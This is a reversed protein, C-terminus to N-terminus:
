TINYGTIKEGVIGYLNEELLRIILNVGDNLILPSGGYPDGHTLHATSKNATEYVKVLLNMEDNTLDYINIWKGGLDVIKVEYSKEDNSKLYKRKQVLEHKKNVGLGMFEILTRCEMRSAECACICLDIALQNPIRYNKVLCNWPVVKKYTNLMSIRYPLHVKFFSIKGIDDLPMVRQDVRNNM